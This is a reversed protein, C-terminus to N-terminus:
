IVLSEDFLQFAGVVMSPCDFHDAPVRSAVSVQFLESFSRFTYTGRIRM